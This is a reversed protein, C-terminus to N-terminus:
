RDVEIELDEIRFYKMNLFRSQFFNGQNQITLNYGEGEKLFQAIRFYERIIGVTKQPNVWIM